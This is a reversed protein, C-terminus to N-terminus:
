RWWLRLFVRGWFHTRLAAELQDLRGLLTLRRGRLSAALARGFSEEEETSM